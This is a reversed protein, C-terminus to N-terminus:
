SRSPGPPAARLGSRALDIIERRGGDAQLFRLLIRYSDLDFPLPTPDALPSRILDRIEKNRMSKLPTSEFGTGRRADQTVRDVVSSHAGMVTIFM